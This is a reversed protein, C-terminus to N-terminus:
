KLQVQAQYGIGDSTFATSSAGVSMYWDNVDLAQWNTVDTGLVAAGPQLQALLQSPITAQKQAPPLVCSITVTPSQGNAPANYVSVTFTENEGGTWKLPLDTSRDIVLNTTGDPQFSAATLAPSSLVIEDPAAVSTSFSPVEGAGQVSVSIAQDDTKGDWLAQTDSEASYSNDKGAQLPMQFAGTVSITGAALYTPAPATSASCDTLTCSGVTTSTCGSQDGSKGFLGYGYSYAWPTGQWSGSASYAQVYGWKYTTPDQAGTQTDSQSKAPTPQPPASCGALGLFLAFVSEITGNKLQMTFGGRAGAELSLRALRAAASIAASEAPNAQFVSRKRPQVPTAAQQLTAGTPNELITFHSSRVM